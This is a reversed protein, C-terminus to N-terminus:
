PSTADGDGRGSAPGQPLGSLTETPIPVFVAATARRPIITSPTTLRAAIEAPEPDGPAGPVKGARKEGSPIPRAFRVTVGPEPYTSVITLAVPDPYSGTVVSLTVNLKVTIGVQSDPLRTEFEVPFKLQANETGSTGAPDYETFAESPTWLPDNVKRTIAGVRENAGDLPNTELRRVAVPFPYSTFVFSAKVNPPTKTPHAAPERVVFEVPNRLQVKGARTTGSPGYGTTAVSRFLEPLPVNVTNDGVSENVGLLPLTPLETAAVPLPYV